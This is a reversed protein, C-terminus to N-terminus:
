SITRQKGRKPSLMRLSQDLTPSLQTREAVNLVIEKAVNECACHNKYKASIIPTTVAVSKCAGLFFKSGKLYITNQFLIVSFIHSGYIM